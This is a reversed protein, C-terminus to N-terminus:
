RFKVGIDALQARTKQFRAANKVGICECLVCAEYGRRRAGRATAAVCANGDIGGIDVASIREGELLQSLAENSFADGKAKRFVHDSVVNLQSALEFCHEGDRLVRVNKVYVVLAHSKLARQIQQNIKMPLAEDYAAMYEQQVDIVLLANRATM